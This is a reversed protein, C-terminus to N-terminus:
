VVGKSGIDMRVCWVGKTRDSKGFVPFVDVIAKTALNSAARPLRTRIVDYVWAATSLTRNFSSSFPSEAVLLAWASGGSTRTPRPDDHWGPTWGIKDVLIAFSRSCGSADSDSLSRIMGEASESLLVMAEALITPTVAREM